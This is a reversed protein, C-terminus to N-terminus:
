REAVAGYGTAFLFVGRMCLFFFPPQHCQKEFSVFTSNIQLEKLKKKGQKYFIKEFHTKVTM